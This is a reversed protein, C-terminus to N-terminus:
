RTTTRPRIEEIWPEHRPGSRLVVEYRPPADEHRQAGPLLRQLRWPVSVQEILLSVHGGLCRPRGCRTASQDRYQYPTVKAPAILHTSRDPYRERLAAADGGVDVIFLRSGTRLERAAAERDSERFAPMPKADDLDEDSLAFHEAV